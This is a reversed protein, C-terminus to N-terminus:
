FPAPPGTTPRRPGFRQETQDDVARDNEHIRAHHCRRCVPRLNDPDNNGRQQDQHHLEVDDAPRGCCTCGTM